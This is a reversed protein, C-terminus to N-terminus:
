LSLKKIPKFGKTKLFDMNHMFNKLAESPDIRDLNLMDFIGRNFKISLIPVDESYGNSTNLVTKLANVLVTDSPYLAFMDKAIRFCVSCVYDQKIDYYTTKTINKRSIKYTKTLSLSHEPVIDTKITVDVEIGNKRFECKKVECFAEINSFPKIENLLTESIQENGEIIGKAFRVRGEWEEYVKADEMEALKIQQKLRDKKKAQLSRFIKGHIQPKYKEYRLVAEKQCPGMEGKRFPEEEEAMSQWDIPSLGDKHLSRILNIYYEYNNVANMNSIQSYAIGSKKHAKKKNTTTVYSLGTGPIGISTTVRGSSHYTRRFGRTGTSLSVGSKGFNLRVGDAIKISQRFRWGM